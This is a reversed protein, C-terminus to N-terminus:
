DSRREWQESPKKVIGRSSLQIFKLIEDRDEGSPIDKKIQKVADATNLNSYFFINFIQKIENIRERSFGARRLGIANLGYLLLPRNGAVRSFPLVDQTIASYGGVFAHKGIRCFQHVGTFGGVTAHDHVTVHGSLSAANIFVTKDGVHCDHAIHSYAMIYNGDGITTIGGGKKTGRHISVFERITNNDGIQLQTEEGKYDVDQPETGVTCFSFIHCNKGVVTKGEIYVHSDIQTEKRISVQPGIISYQGVSVGSEIQAGDAIEATPHITIDKENM